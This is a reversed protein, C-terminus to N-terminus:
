GAPARSRATALVDSVRQVLDKSSYPKQLFSLESRAVGFRLVEDATYGSTYLVALEPMSSCLTEALRRFAAGGPRTVFVGVAIGVLAAAATAALALALHAGVLSSFSQQRYLPRELWPFLAAFLPESYPMALVLAAFAGLALLFRRSAASM